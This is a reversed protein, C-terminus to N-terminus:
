DLRYLWAANKGLVQQKAEFTLKQGCTGTGGLSGRGYAKGEIVLTEFGKEDIVLRPAQARFSPVIYREWLDPPELIHGDADIVRAAGM